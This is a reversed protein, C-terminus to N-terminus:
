LTKTCVKEQQKHELDEYSQTQAEKLSTNIDTGIVREQLHLIEDKQ